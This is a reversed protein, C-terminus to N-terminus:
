PRIETEVVAGQAGGADITHGLLTWTMSPDMPSPMTAGVTIVQPLVNAAVASGTAKDTRTANPDPSPSPNDVFYHIPDGLPSATVTAGAVPTENCDVVTILLLVKAPDLNMIGMHSTVDTAIESTFMLPDIVIDKTIAEAPYFVTTLFANNTVQLHVNAPVGGTRVQFSYKGDAGVTMPPLSLGAEFLTVSAGAVPQGTVAVQVTGSITVPDPATAPTHVNHCDYPGPPADAAVLQKEPISCAPAAVAIAAAIAISRM